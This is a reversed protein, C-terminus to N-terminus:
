RYQFMAAFATLGVVILYTVFSGAWLVATKLILKQPGYFRRIAHYLYVIAIVLSIVGMVVQFPGPKMGRVAYIPWEVLRVVYGFSLFHAAFVLHEVLHRGRRRYLLWLVFALGGLNAFQMLTLNKHWRADVKEAYADPTMKHKAAKKEIMKALPSRPNYRAANAVSYMAAPQYVSYAIVHLAFLTIFLRLPTIYRTKRGAFYEATLHGPKTVLDRLTRFLKGDLHILEHVFDHAFHGVTLDHHSPQREGCRACYVDAAAEGCNTCPKV